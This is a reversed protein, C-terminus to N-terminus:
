FRFQNKGAAKAQYLLEDAQRLCEDVDGGRFLRGGASFRIGGFETLSRNAQALLDGLLREADLQSPTDILLLFEEGGIRGATIEPYQRLLAGFAELFIDGTRHGYTDNVCKFDDLDLMVMFMSTPQEYLFRFIARRNRLGTLDDYNALYHLQRRTKVSETMDRIFAVLYETDGIAMLRSNIETPFVSGDKRLNFREIYCDPLIDDACYSEKLYSANEAPVLHRINLGEMEEKTYGFMDAGAQNCLLINGATDEIFIGEISLEMVNLIAQDLNHRLNDM